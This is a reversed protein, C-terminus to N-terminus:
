SVIIHQVSTFLMSIGSTPFITFRPSSFSLLPSIHIIHFKILLIHLILSNLTAIKLFHHHLDLSFISLNHYVTRTTRYPFNPPLNSEIQYFLGKAILSPTPRPTPEQNEDLKPRQTPSM